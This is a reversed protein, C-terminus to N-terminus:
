DLSHVRDVLPEIQDVNTSAIVACGAHSDLWEALWQRVSATTKKDMAGFPEDFLAVTPSPKVRNIAASLDTM